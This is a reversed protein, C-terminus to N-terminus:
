RGKGRPKTPKEPEAALQCAMLEPSAMHDVATLKEGRKVKETQNKKWAEYEKKCEDLGGNSQTSFKRNAPDNWDISENQDNKKGAM